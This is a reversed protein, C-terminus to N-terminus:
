VNLVHVFMMVVVQQQIQVFVEGYVNQVLVNMQTENVMVPLSLVVVLVLVVLILVVAVPAQLVVVGVVVVVVLHVEGVGVVVVLHVVEEVVAPHPIVVPHDAQLHVEQLHVAKHEEV